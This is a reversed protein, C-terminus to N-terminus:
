TAGPAETDGPGVGTLEPAVGQRRGQRRGPRRGPRRGWELVPPGSGPRRASELVPPGQAGEPSPLSPLKGQSARLRRGLLSRAPEDARHLGHGRIDGDVTKCVSVRWHDPCLDAARELRECRDVGGARAEVQRARQHDGIGPRIAPM